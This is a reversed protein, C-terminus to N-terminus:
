VKVAGTDTMTFEARMNLLNDFKLRCTEARKDCGPYITLLDGVEPRRPLPLAMLINRTTSPSGMTDLLVEMSIGLNVGLTWTVMGFSFYGDDFEPSGPLEIQFRQTNTSAVVEADVKLAEIDVKCRADGLDARCEISYSEGLARKLMSSLGYLEFSASGKNGKRATGLIGSMLLVRGYQPFQWDILDHRFSAGDYLGAHIDAGTIGLGPPSTENEYAIDIESNQMGGGLRMQVASVIFQQTPYYVEEPSTGPLSIARDHSTYRHIVGDRRTLTWLRALTTHGLALRNRLNTSISRPM